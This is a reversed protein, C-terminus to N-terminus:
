WTKITNYPPTGPDITSSSAAIALLADLSATYSSGSAAIKLEPMSAIFYDGEYTPVSYTTGGINSLTQGGVTRPQYSINVLYKPNEM